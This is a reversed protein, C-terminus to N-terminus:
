GRYEWFWEGIRIQQGPVAGRAHLKRIVGWKRLVDYIREKSEQSTHETMRAMQELRPNELSWWNESETIVVKRPDEREDAPKFEVVEQSEEEVLDHITESIEEEEPLREKVARLVNDVGEHTVASALLPRLGTAKEFEDCMFTEFEDDTTDVKTFVPLFPKHALNESFKELEARIIEFDKVPDNSLIDVLHLVFSAREIHRLFTHGLGKGEAAGEILGPIDVFMVERDDIKAVGLNPILTTFHYEAIKPKANSVVSIFTSKGVSPYGVLAVDAVMKLELHVDLEEGRDGREAFKPAQRISSVFGANGKGGIGGHCATYTQNKETLDAIIEGTNIDKIQTGVPVDLTLNEGNRGTKLQGKGPVGAEAEFVKQSRYNMLTHTNDIARFVIDGGMGGNGGDPGGKPIYKERRFSVCGDGGKGAIVRIRVEDVFM